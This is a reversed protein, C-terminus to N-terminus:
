PIISDLISALAPADTSCDLPRELGCHGSRGLVWMPDALWCTQLPPSWSMNYGSASWTVVTNIDYGAQRLAHGSARATHGATLQDDIPAVKRGDGRAICQIGADTKRLVDLVERGGLAGARHTLRLSVQGPTASTFPSSPAPVLGVQPNRMHSALVLAPLEILALRPEPGSHGKGGDSRWDKAARWIGGGRPNKFPRFAGVHLNPLDVLQSASVVYVQDPRLGVGVTTATPPGCGSASKTTWM